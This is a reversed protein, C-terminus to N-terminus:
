LDTALMRGPEDIGGPVPYRLFAAGPAPDLLVSGGQSRPTHLAVAGLPPFPADSNGAASWGHSGLRDQASPACATRRASMVVRQDLSFHWHASTPPFPPPQCWVLVIAVSRFTYPCDTLRTCQQLSWQRVRRRRSVDM